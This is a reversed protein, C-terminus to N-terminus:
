VAMWTFFLAVPVIAAVSGAFISGPLDGAEALIVAGGATFIFWGILFFCTLIDIM